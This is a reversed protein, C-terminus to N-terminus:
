DHQTMSQSNDLAIAIPRSKSGTVDDVIVPKRLLFIIAVLTLARLGGLVLRQFLDMKMSERFYMFFAAAIALVMLPYAVWASLTGRFALDALLPNPNHLLAVM